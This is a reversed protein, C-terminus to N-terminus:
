RRLLEWAKAKCPLSHQTMMMIIYVFEGDDGDDYDNENDDDDVCNVIM